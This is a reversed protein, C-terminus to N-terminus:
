PSGGAPPAAPDIPPPALQSLQVAFVIASADAPPRFDFTKKTIRPRDNWDDFEAWFQPQEPEDRYTLVLRRPWPKEGDTIWVQFDVVATQGIVHHTPVEFVYATEVYDAFRLRPALEEQFRSTFLAALPLRMELERTFYILADDISGPQDAQAYVGYDADYVTVKRGDFLISSNRGDAHTEDARFRDPRALTVARSELFQIKTGNEQVVDYGGRVTVAFRELGGLFRAMNMLLERGQQQSATAAPDADDAPAQAVSTAAFALAAVLLCLRMSYTM